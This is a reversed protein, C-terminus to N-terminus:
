KAYERTRGSRGEVTGQRTQADKKRDFTRLRASFRGASSPPSGPQLASRSPRRRGAPLPTVSSRESRCRMGVADPGTKFVCQSRRPLEDVRIARLSSKKQVGQWAPRNGNRRNPVPRLAFPKVRGPRKAPRSCSRGLTASVNSGASGAAWVNSVAPGPWFLRKLHPGLGM